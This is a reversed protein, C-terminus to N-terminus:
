SLLLALRSCCSRPRWNHDQSRGHLDACNQDLTSKKVFDLIAQLKVNVKKEAAPNQDVIDVIDKLEADVQKALDTGPEPLKFEFFRM